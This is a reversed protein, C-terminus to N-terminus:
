NYSAEGTSTRNPHDCLNMLTGMVMQTNVTNQTSRFSGAGADLDNIVLCAFRGTQSMVRSAKRYPRASSARWMM